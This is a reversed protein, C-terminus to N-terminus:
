KTNGAFPSYYYKGNFIVVYQIMHNISLDIQFWPDDGTIVDCSDTSGDVFEELESGGAESQDTDM